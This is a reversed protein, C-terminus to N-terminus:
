KSWLLRNRLERLLFSNFSPIGGKPLEKNDFLAELVSGNSLVYDLKYEDVTENCVMLDINFVDHKSDIRCIRGVAQVFKSISFPIDYMIMSNGAQLNLSQAGATTLLLVKNKSDQMYWDQSKKRRKETQQGTIKDFEINNEELLKTIADITKYFSCFILIGNEKREHITELLSQLKNKSKNVIGQLDHLRASHSKEEDSDLLGKAALKYDEKLDEDLDSKRSIYNINTKPFYSLMIDKLERKLLDLNKYSHIVEIERLRGRIKVKQKVRNVYSRNFSNYNLYGDELFNVLNYIDFLDKSFNTASFGYNYKFNYKLQKFITTTLSKPNKLVHVEDYYAAINYNKFINPLDRVLRLNLSRRKKDKSIKTYETFINLITSYEIIAVFTQQSHLFEILNSLSKIHGVSNITSHKAFAKKIAIASSKTTFFLGKDIYGKRLQYIFSALAVMSKGLGTKYNIIASRRNVCFNIAEIQYDYPKHKLKFTEKM